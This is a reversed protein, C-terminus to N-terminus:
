KLGNGTLWCWMRCWWSNRIRDLLSHMELLETEHKAITKLYEANECQYQAIEKLHAEKETHYQEIEKQYGANENELILSRAFKARLEPVEELQEELADIKAELFGVRYMAGELRINTFDLNELLSNLNKATIQQRDIGEVVLEKDGSDAPGSFISPSAVKAQLEAIMRATEDLDVAAIDDFLEQISMDGTSPAPSPVRLRKRTEGSILKKVEQMFSSRSKGAQARVCAAILTPQGNLTEGSCLMNTDILLKVKEVTTGLIKATQELTLSEFDSEAPESADGGRTDNTTNDTIDSLIQGEACGNVIHLETPERLDVQVHNM